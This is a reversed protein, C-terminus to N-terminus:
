LSRSPDELVWEWALARQPSRSFCRSRATTTNTIMNLLAEVAGETSYHDGIVENLKKPPAVAMVVARGSAFAAAQDAEVNGPESTALIPQRYDLRLPFVRFREAVRAPVLKVAAPSATKFDALDLSFRDAVVQALEEDSVGCSAVIRQWAEEVPLTAQLSLESGTLDAQRAVNELWHIEPSNVMVM